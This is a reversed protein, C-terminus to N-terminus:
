TQPGYFWFWPSLSALISQLASLNGIFVVVSSGKWVHVWEFWQYLEKSTKYPMLTKKQTHQVTEGEGHVCHNNNETLFETAM